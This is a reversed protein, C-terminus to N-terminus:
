YGRTGCVRCDLFPRRVRTFLMCPEQVTHCKPCEVMGYEQGRTRLVPAPPPEVPKRRRPPASSLGNVAKAFDAELGDVPAAPMTETLLADIEEQTM